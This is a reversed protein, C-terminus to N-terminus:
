RPLGKQSEVPLNIPGNRTRSPKSVPPDSGPDHLSQQDVLGLSPEILETGVHDHGVVHM